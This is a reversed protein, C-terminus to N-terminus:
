VQFFLILFDKEHDMLIWDSSELWREVGGGRRRRRAERWISKTTAYVCYSASGVLRGNRQNFLMVLPIRKFSSSSSADLHRSWFSAMMKELEEDEKERSSSRTKRHLFMCFLSPGSSISGSAHCLCLLFRYLVEVM